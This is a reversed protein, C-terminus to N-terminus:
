AFVHWVFEGCHATGIYKNESKIGMHWGTGFVHVLRQETPADPDVLAWLTPEDNQAHVHLLDAGVPMTLVNAGVKLPFKWISMATM